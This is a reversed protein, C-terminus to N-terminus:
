LFLARRPFLNAAEARTANCGFGNAPRQAHRLRGHEIIKLTRFDVGAVGDYERQTGAAPRRQQQQVAKRLRMQHPAVNRGRQGAPEADDAGIQAAIAATGTRRRSRIM